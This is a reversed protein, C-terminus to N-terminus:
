NLVSGGIVTNQINGVWNTNSGIRRLVTISTPNCQIHNDVNTFMLPGNGLPGNSMTMGNYDGYIDFRDHHGYITFTTNEVTM